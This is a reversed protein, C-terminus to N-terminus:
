VAIRCPIFPSFSIRTDFIAPSYLHFVDERGDQGGEVEGSPESVSRKLGFGAGADGFLGDRGGRL